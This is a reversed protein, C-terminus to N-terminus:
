PRPVKNYVPIAADTDGSRHLEVAEDFAKQLEQQDADQSTM